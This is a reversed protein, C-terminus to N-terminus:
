AWVFEIASEPQLDPLSWFQFFFSDIVVINIPQFFRNMGLSM